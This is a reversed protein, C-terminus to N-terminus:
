ESKEEANESKEANDEPEAAAEDEAKEEADVEIVDDPAQSAEEATEEEVVPKELVTGCKGCFNDEIPCEAGCGTCKVVGRISLIQAKMEAIADTAATIANVAEVAKEDPNEKAIEYYIKGLIAYNESITHESSVIRANLKAVEGIQKTKETVVKGTDTVTKSIKEFVDHM